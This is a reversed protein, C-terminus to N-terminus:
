DSRYLGNPELRSPSIQLSWLGASLVNIAAHWPLRDKSWHCSPGHTALQDINASCHYFNHPHCLPEGLRLGIAICITENDIQLSCASIPFANLWAGSGKCASALLHARSTEDPTNILLQNPLRPYGPCGMRRSLFLSTGDITLSCAGQVM